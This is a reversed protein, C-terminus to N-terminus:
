LQAALQRARRNCAVAAVGDGMLRYVRSMQRLTESMNGQDHNSDFINFALNLYQVSESFNGRHNELMSLTRYIEGREYPPTTLILHALHSFTRSFKTDQVQIDEQMLTLVNPQTM